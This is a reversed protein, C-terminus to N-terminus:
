GTLSQNQIRELTSAISNLSFPKPIFYDAGKERAKEVEEPSHQASIMIVKIGPIDKKITNIIDSGHGDPLNNDLFLISPHFESIKHIAERISNAITVSLSNKKLFRFLLQCLDKEDDVIMIKEYVQGM